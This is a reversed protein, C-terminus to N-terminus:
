KEVPPALKAELKKVIAQLGLSRASALARTYYDVTVQKDITEFINGLEELDNLVDIPAGRAKDMELAKLGLEKAADRDGKLRAIRASANFVAAIGAADQRQEFLSLAEGARTNADDHKGEACNVLALGLLGRAREGPYKEAAFFALATEFSGRADEVKELELCISGLNLMCRALSEDDQLKRYYEASRAAFKEAEAPKGAKHFAVAINNSVRAVGRADDVREYEQLAENYLVLADRLKGTEFALRADASLRKGAEAPTEAKIPASGCGAVALSLLTVVVFSIFLKCHKM